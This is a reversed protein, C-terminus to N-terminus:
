LGAPVKDTPYTVAYGFDITKKEGPKAEWTWALVGPRDQIDKAYGPTTEKDLVAVKLDEARSVPLQDYVVIKLPRGHLNALNTRVRREIRKEKSLFGQEGSQGRQPLHQVTVKEDVGFSLEATDGPKFSALRGNGIYTGDRYLSVPGPLTPAEGEVKIEAHLYARPDVKPVVRASLSAAMEQSAIAFRHDASDAPVGVKGPIRYEAAFESSVVEATRQQVPVPAAEAMAGADAEMKAMPAPAPASMPAMSRTRVASAPPMPAEFQIWWPSLDPMQSGQAPKATSLTLAVESWDEGTRQRVVGYQTLSLKGSETALRADYVPGWSAGPVQYEVAVTMAGDKPAEIAVRVRMAAKAGTRIARLDAEAKRIQEDIGRLAIEQQVIEKLTQESGSQLGMWAQQWQDIRMQGDAKEGKLGEAATRSLSEIFGQRLQLAKAQAEVLRRQDRLEVLKQSLVREQENALDTQTVVKSEVSGILLGAPGSGSVRLSQEVLNAPLGDLVLTHAGAPIRAQGSRTVTARDPFVTVATPTSPVAIDAAWAPAALVLVPLAAAFRMVM